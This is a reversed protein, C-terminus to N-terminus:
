LTDTFFPYGVANKEQVDRCLELLSGHSLALNVSSGM